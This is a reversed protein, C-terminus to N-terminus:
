NSLFWWEGKKLIYFTTTHIFFTTQRYFVKTSGFPPFFHNHFPTSTTLLSNASPKVNVPLWPYTLTIQTNEIIFDVRVTILLYLLHRCAPSYWMPKCPIDHVCSRASWFCVSADLDCPASSTKDANCHAYLVDRFSILPQTQVSSILIPTVAMAAKRAFM